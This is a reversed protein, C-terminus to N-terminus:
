FRLKQCHATYSTEDDETSANGGIFFNEDSDSFFEAEVDFFLPSGFLSPDTYAFIANNNDTSSYLFSLLIKEKQNTLNNHFITIGGSTGTNGGLGILPYFGGTRDDNLLFGIVKDPVKNQESWIFTAGLPTWALRWIKAPLSLAHAFISRRTRYPILNPDPYKVADEDLQAQQASITGDEGESEAASVPTVTFFPILLLLITTTLIKM